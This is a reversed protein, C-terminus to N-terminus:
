RTRTRWWVIGVAAAALFPILIMWLFEEVWAAGAVTGGLVIGVLCIRWDSHLGAFFASLALTLLAVLGADEDNM